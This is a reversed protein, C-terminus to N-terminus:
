RTRRWSRRDRGQGEGSARASGQRRSVGLLLSPEPDPNPDIETPEVEFDELIDDIIRQVLENKVVHVKQPGILNIALQDIMEVVDDRKKLEKGTKPGDSVAAVGGGVMDQELLDCIREMINYGRAAAEFEEQGILNIALQDIM